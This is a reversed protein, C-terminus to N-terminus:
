NTPSMGGVEFVSRDPVNRRSGWVQLELLESRPCEELRLSLSWISTHGREKNGLSASMPPPTFESRPCEEVEFVYEIQLHTGM